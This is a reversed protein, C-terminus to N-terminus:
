QVLETHPKLVWPMRMEEFNHITLEKTSGNVSSGKIYHKNRM